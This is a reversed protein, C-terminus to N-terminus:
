LPRDTQEGAYYKNKTEKEVDMRKLEIQSEKPNPLLNVIKSTAQQERNKARSATESDYNNNFAYIGCIKEEAKKWKSTM